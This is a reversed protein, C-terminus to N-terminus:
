ACAQLHRLHSGLVSSASFDSDRQPAVKGNAAECLAFSVVLAPEWLASLSVWKMGVLLCVNKMRFAVKLVELEVGQVHDDVKGAAM